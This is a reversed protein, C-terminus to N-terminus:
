TKISMSKYWTIRLQVKTNEM